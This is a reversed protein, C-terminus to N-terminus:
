ASAPIARSIDGTSVWEAFSAFEQRWPKKDEAGPGRAYIYTANGFHLMSPTKFHCRIKPPLLYAQDTHVIYTFEEGTKESRGFNIGDGYEPRPSRKNFKANEYWGVAYHDGDLARAVFV